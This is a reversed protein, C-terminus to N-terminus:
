SYLSRPGWGRNLWFFFFRPASEPSNKRYRGVHAAASIHDAHQMRPDAHAPLTGTLDSPTPPGPASRPWGIRVNDQLFSHLLMEARTIHCRSEVLYPLSYYYVFRRGALSRDPIFPATHRVPWPIIPARMRIRVM